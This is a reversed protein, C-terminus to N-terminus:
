KGVGARDGLLGGDQIEGREVDAVRMLTGFAHLLREHHHGAHLPVGDGGRELHEFRLFTAGLTVHQGDGVVLHRIYGFLDYADDEAVGSEHVPEGPTFFESAKSTQLLIERPAASAASNKLCLPAHFQFEPCSKPARRTRRAEALFRKRLGDKRESQQRTRIKIMLWHHVGSGSRFATGNARSSM